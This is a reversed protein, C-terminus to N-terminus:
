SLYNIRCLPCNKQNTQFWKMICEQHFIHTCKLQIINENDTYNELCISCQDILNDTFIIKKLNTKTKHHKRIQKIKNYWSGLQLCFCIIVLSTFIFIPSNDYEYHIIHGNNEIYRQNNEIYPSGM